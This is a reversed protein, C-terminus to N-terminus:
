AQQLFQRSILAIGSLVFAAMVAKIKFGPTCVSAKSAKAVTEEFIEKLKYDTTYKETLEAIEDDLVVELKYQKVTDKLDAVVVSLDSKVRELDDKSPTNGLNAVIDEKYEQYLKAHQECMNMSEKSQALNVRALFANRVLDEIRLKQGNVRIASTLKDAPCNLAPTAQSQYKEIKHKLSHYPRNLALGEPADSFNRLEAQQKLVKLAYDAVIPDKLEMIVEKLQSTTDIVAKFLPDRMAQNDCLYFNAFPMYPAQCYSSTTM